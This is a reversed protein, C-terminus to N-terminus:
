STESILQGRCTNWCISVVQSKFELNFEKLAFYPKMKSRYKYVNSGRMFTIVVIMCSGAMEYSGFFLALGVLMANVQPEEEVRLFFFHDCLPLKNPLFSDIQTRTFRRTM